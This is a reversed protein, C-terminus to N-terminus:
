NEIKFTLAVGDGASFKDGPVVKHGIAVKKGMLDMNAQDPDVDIINGMVWPGEVLEVMAVIYPATFGEPAVRIVTYTRIEGKGAGTAIIISADEMKMGLSSLIGNLIEHSVQKCDEGTQSIGSGVVDNSDLIVVKTWLTGVDIGAYLM